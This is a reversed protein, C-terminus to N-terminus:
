VVHASNAAHPGSLFGFEDPSAPATYFLNVDLDSEAPTQSPGPAHDSEEERCGFVHLMLYNPKRNNAMKYPTTNAPIAALPCMNLLRAYYLLAKGWFRIPLRANNLMAIVHEELTRNWREAVSNQQSLGTVTHKCRISHEAFFEDWVHGIYEGGKDKHFRLIPLNYQKEVMTKFTKFAEFADSKHKLLYIWGYRLWNNIFTM